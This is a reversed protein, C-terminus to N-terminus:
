SGESDHEFLSGQIESADRKAPPPSAAEAAAVREAEALFQEPDVTRNIEDFVRGARELSYVPLERVGVRHSDEGRKWFEVIEIERRRPEMFLSFDLTYAEYRGPRGSAASTDPEVVHILKFDMLQQVLDHERVQRQAEDQSVLFGTKRKEKLCFQMLDVLVRELGSADREADERLHSLKTQYSLRGAGKYVHKPTVWRPKGETVAADVAHFFINLFDRPVGGSALTLAQLADPNFLEVVNDVGAKKGMSRLMQSLFGQTQELDELTRDLNIEEVDQALEVGVTQPQNKLLTTRHRITAVKLYVDTDRLLRHLYDIVDAQWERPVLYFDDVLVCGRKGRWENTVQLIADKYDRLHRELLDIKRERFRATRSQAERSTSHVKARGLSGAGVTATAEDSSKHERGEVVESEEAVDLFARLEKAAYHTAPRRSFLRKLWPRRHSLAELIEVLLRILIDPYALRKFEDALIYIPAIERKPVTKLYEVLLCSKGSGRRGFIIQHQPAGLRALNGSVDVYIPRINRRVRFSDKILDVLKKVAPSNLDV